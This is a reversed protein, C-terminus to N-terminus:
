RGFGGRIYSNLADATFRLDWQQASQQRVRNLFGRYSQDAESLTAMYSGSTRGPAPYSPLFNQLRPDVFQRWQDVNLYANPRGALSWSFLPGLPANPRDGRFFNNQTFM